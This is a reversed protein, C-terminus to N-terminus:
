GLKRMLRRYRVGGGGIAWGMGEAGAFILKYLCIPSLSFNQRGVKKKLISDQGARVRTMLLVALSPSRIQAVTLRLNYSVFPKRATERKSKHARNIRHLNM